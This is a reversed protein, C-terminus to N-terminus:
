AYYKDVRLFMDPDTTDVLFHLKEDARDTVPTLLAGRSVYDMLIFSYEKAQEHVQCGAWLTKLDKWRSPRFEHVLAVDFTQKSELTYRLLASLCAFALAPGERDLLVYDFRSYGYFSPNCRM